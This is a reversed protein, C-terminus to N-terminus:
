KGLMEHKFYVALEFEWKTRLLIKSVFSKLNVTGLRDTCVVTSLLQM